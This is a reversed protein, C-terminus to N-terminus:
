SQGHSNGYMDIASTQSSLYHYMQDHLRIENQATVETGDIGARLSINYSFKDNVQFSLTGSVFQGKNVAIPEKLLLRCQYWHTGPSDPSTSLVLHETTGLFAIDFWGGLGHMIATKDVRFSFGIEFNQLEQCTVSLFDITHVTRHSSILCATSFYGVVPQSFYEDVAHEIAPTLDIGYFNRNEWFQIKSLQEKYLSEDSFPCLVISGTTPYMMGGPKLFRERAVAYSELMREHVLLFGIPESIILDVKEPLSIEEIKGMVIIMRDGFGNAKALKEAIVASSSAEVSYVRKAGAQLAFFSLIGTGAGVDLVVKDKFDAINKFVAQQYTGTRVYDQLMNGQHLLQAYYQTFPNEVDEIAAASM